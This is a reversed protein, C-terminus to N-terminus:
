TESDLIRFEFTYEMKVAVPHVGELGPAFEWKHIAARTATEFEPQSARLVDIIVITGDTRVEVLLSVIGSVTIRRMEIPYEPLAQTVPIPLATSAPARSSSHLQVSFPYAFCAGEIQRQSPEANMAVSLVMGAIILLTKPPNM